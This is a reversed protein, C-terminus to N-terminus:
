RYRQWQQAIAMVEMVIGDSDCGDVNWRKRQWQQAIAMAEMAIGDCDSKCAQSQIAVTM